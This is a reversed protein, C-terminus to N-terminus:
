PGPQREPPEPEDAPRGGFMGAIWRHLRRVPFSEDVAGHAEIDDAEDRDEDPPEAWLVSADSV